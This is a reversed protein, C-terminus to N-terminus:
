YQLFSLGEYGKLSPGVLVVPRVNPVVEYPTRSKEGKKDRTGVSEVKSKRAKRSSSRIKEIKVPSPIFGVGPDPSIVRGIWWDDDYKERIHIFDDIDFSVARGSIPADDDIHGKYSISSKVTFLVPKDRCTDLKQSAM